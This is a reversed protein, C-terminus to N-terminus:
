FKFTIASKTLVAVQVFLNFGSFLTICNILAPVFGLFVTFVLGLMRDGEVSQFNLTSTILLNIKGSCM